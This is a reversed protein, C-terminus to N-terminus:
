FLYPSSGKVTVFSSLFAAIFWLALSIDHAMAAGFLWSSVAQQAILSAVEPEDLISNTKLGRYLALIKTFPRVLFFCVFIM